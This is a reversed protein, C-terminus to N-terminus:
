VSCRRGVWLHVRGTLLLVHRVRRREYAAAHVLDHGLRHAGVRRYSYEVLSRLRLAPFVSAVTSLEGCEAVKQSVLSFLRSSRGFRVTRLTTSLESSGSRSVTM